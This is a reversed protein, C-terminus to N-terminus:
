NKFCRVMSWVSKTRIHHPVPLACVPNYSQMLGRVHWCRVMPAGWPEFAPAATSSPAATLHTVMSRRPPAASPWSPARSAEHRWRRGCSTMQPNLPKPKLELPRLFVDAPPVWMAPMARRRGTSVLIIFIRSACCKGQKIISTHLNSKCPSRM